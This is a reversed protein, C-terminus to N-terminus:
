DFAGCKYAVSLERVHDVLGQLREESDVVWARGKAKAIGALQRQQNPTVATVKGPAKTEIAIFRGYICAIIDPIGVVGMGNQVPMYFWCHDGLSTLYKKVKNKVLGEPTTAM